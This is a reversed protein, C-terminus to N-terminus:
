MVSILMNILFKQTRTLERHTTISEPCGVELLASLIRSQFSGFITIQVFNIVSLQSGKQVGHVIQVNKSMRHAIFSERDAPLKQSSIEVNAVRKKNDPEPYLYEYQDDLYEPLAQFVQRGTSDGVVAISWNSPSSFCKRIISSREM